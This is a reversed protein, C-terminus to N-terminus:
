RNSAEGVLEENTFPGYVEASDFFTVGMEVAARTMEIGTKRHPPTGYMGTLGTCGYGMASVQVGQGLDCTQALTVGTAYPSTHAKGGGADSEGAEAEAMRRADLVTM